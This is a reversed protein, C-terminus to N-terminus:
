SYRPFLPSYSIVLPPLHLLCLSIFRPLFFLFLLKSSCFLLSLSLSPSLLGRIPLARTGEREEVHIPRHSRCTFAHHLTQLSHTLSCLQSELCRHSMATVHCSGPTAGVCLDSHSQEKMDHRSAFHCARSEHMTWERRQIVITRFSFSFFFFLTSSHTHTHAHTHTQTHTNTHTHTHTNWGQALTQSCGALSTWIYWLPSLKPKVEVIGGCIRGAPCAELVVINHLLFLKSFHFTIGKHSDRSFVCVIKCLQKGTLIKMETMSPFSSQVSWLVWLPDM